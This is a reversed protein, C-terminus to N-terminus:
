CTDPIENDLFRFGKQSSRTNYGVSHIREDLGDKTKLTGTNKRRLNPINALGTTDVAFGSELVETTRLGTIEAGTRSWTRWVYTVTLM